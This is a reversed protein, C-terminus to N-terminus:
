LNKINTRIREKVGRIRYVNIKNVVVATVVLSIISSFLIFRTLLIVFSTFLKKM